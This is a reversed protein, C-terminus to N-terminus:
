FVWLNSFVLIKANTRWAVTLLIRLEYLFYKSISAKPDSENDSETKEGDKLDIGPNEDDDEITIVDTDIPNDNPTRIEEQDKSIGELSKSTTDKSGSQSEHHTNDQGPTQLTSSKVRKAVQIPEGFLSNATRKRTSSPRGPPNDM